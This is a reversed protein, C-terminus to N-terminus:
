LRWGAPAPRTPPRRRRDEPTPHDPPRRDHPSGRADRDAALSLGREALAESLDRTWTATPQVAADLLTVRVAEGRVSVSLQLDGIEVTMRRPPPAHELLAVAEAVKGALVSPTPAPSGTPPPAGGVAPAASTTSTPAGVSDAPAFARTAVAETARMRADDGRVPVGRSPDAAPTASPQLPADAGIPPAPVVDAPLPRASFRVALGGPASSEPGRAPSAVPPGPLADWPAQGPEPVEGPTVPAGPLPAAVLDLGQRAPAPDAVAGELAVDGQPAPQFLPVPTHPAAAERAPPEVPGRLAVPAPSGGAPWGAHVPLTPPGAPAAGGPSWEPDVPESESAVTSEDDAEAPAPQAGDEVGVTTSITCADLLLAAFPHGAGARPQECGAVPVTAGAPLPFPPLAPTM